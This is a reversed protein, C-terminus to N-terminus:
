RRTLRVAWHGDDGSDPLSEVIAEQVFDCHTAVFRNILDPGEERFLSCVAYVLTGGKPLRAALSTLLSIQQEPHASLDDENLLWKIEPHRRIVGSGSCPADLMIGTHRADTLLQRCDGVQCQISTLGLRDISQKLRELRVSDIDTADISARDDTLEALHLSKGGPAACADLYIADVQPHLLPTVAQAAADQVSFFGEGYGPWEHVPSSWDDVLLATPRRPHIRAAMLRQEFLTQLGEATMRLRNTRVTIPPEELTQSLIALSRDFGYQMLLRRAFWDQVNGLIALRRVPDTTSDPEAEPGKRSLTRLIANVFGRGSARHEILEVSTNIAAHHPVRQLYLLQAVGLRLPTLLLKDIKDIARGSLQEIQWDIM